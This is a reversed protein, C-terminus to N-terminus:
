IMDALVHTLKIGSQIFDKIAKNAELENNYARNKFEFIFNSLDNYMRTINRRRTETM